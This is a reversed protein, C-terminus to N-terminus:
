PAPLGGGVGELGSGLADCGAGAGLTTHGVRDGRGTTGVLMGPRVGFRLVEALAPGTGGGAQCPAPTGKTAPGGFGGDPDAPDVAVLLRGTSPAPTPGSSPTSRYM